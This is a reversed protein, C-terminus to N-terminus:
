TDSSRCEVVTAVVDGAVATGPTHELSAFRAKIATIETPPTWDWEAAGCAGDLFAKEAIAVCGPGGHLGLSWIRMARADRYRRQSAGTRWDASSMPQSHSVAFTAIPLLLTAM